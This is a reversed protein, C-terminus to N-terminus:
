IRRGQWVVQGVVQLQRLDDGEVVESSYRENDSVVKVSGNMAPQLRKVLLRGELNIVYIGPRLGDMERTDVLIMDGHTLTPAMSDGDVNLLALRDLQLGLTGRLWDRRFAMQDLVHEGDILAGPGASARIDYRPVQVFDSWDRVRLPTFPNSKERAVVPSEPAAGSRLANAILELDAEADGQVLARLQMRGAEDLPLADIVARTAGERTQRQLFEEHTEGGELMPAGELLFYDPNLHFEKVLGAIESQRLHQAKGSMLSKVRDVDVGMADALRKQTVRLRLKIESLPNKM